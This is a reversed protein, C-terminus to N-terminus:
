GILLKEFPCTRAPPLLQLSLEVAFETARYANRQKPRKGHEWTKDGLKKASALAAQDKSGGDKRGGGCHMIHLM